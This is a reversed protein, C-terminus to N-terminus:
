RVILAGYLSNESDHCSVRRKQLGSPIYSLDLSETSDKFKERLKCVYVVLVLTVMLVIALSVSLGITLGNVAIRTSTIFNHSTKELIEPSISTSKVYVQQFITGSVLPRCDAWLFNTDSQISIATTDSKEFKVSWTPKKNITEFRKFNISGNGCGILPYCTPWRVEIVKWDLKNDISADFPVTMNEGHRIHVTLNGDEFPWLWMKDVKENSAMFLDGRGIKSYDVYCPGNREQAFLSQGNYIQLSLVQQTIIVILLCLKHIINDIYTAM